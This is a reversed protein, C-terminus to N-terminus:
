LHFMLPFIHLPIQLEDSHKLAYCWLSCNILWYTRFSWSHIYVSMVVEKLVNLISFIVSARICYVGWSIKKKTALVINLFIIFLFESAIIAISSINSGYQIWLTMPLAYGLKARTSMTALSLLMNKTKKLALFRWWKFIFIHTWLNVLNASIRFVRIEAGSWWDHLSNIM